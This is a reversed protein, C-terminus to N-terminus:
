RSAWSRASIGNRPPHGSQADSKGKLLVACHGISSTAANSCHQCNSGAVAPAPVPPPSLTVAGARPTTFLAFIATCPFARSLAVAAVGFEGDLAGEFDLDYEPLSHRARSRTADSIALATASMCASGRQRSKVAAACCCCCCCNNPLAAANAGEVRASLLVDTDNGEDGAAAAAAAAASDAERLLPQQERKLPPQQPPLERPTAAAEAPNQRPGISCRSRLLRFTSSSAEPEASSLSKPSAFGKGHESLLLSALLLLSAAGKEQPEQAVLGSEKRERM